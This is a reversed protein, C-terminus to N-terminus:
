RIRGSPSRSPSARVRGGGLPNALTIVHGFPAEGLAPAARGLDGRQSRARHARAHAGGVDGAPGGLAARRYAFELGLMRVLVETVSLAIQRADQKGWTAPLMSLAVLDRLSRRLEEPTDGIAEIAPM